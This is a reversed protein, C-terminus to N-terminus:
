GFDRYSFGKLGLMVSDFPLYSAGWVLMCLVGHGVIQDWRGGKGSQLHSAGRLCHEFRRPTYHYTEPTKPM